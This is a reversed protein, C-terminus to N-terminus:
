QSAPLHHHLACLLAAAQYGPQPRHREAVDLYCPRLCLCTLMHPHMGVMGLGVLLQGGVVWVGVASTCSVEVLGLECKCAAQYHYLTAAEFPPGCGLLQAVM